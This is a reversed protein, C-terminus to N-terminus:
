IMLKELRSQQQWADLESHGPRGSGSKVPMRATWVKTLTLTSAVPHGMLLGRRQNLTRGKVVTKLRVATRM